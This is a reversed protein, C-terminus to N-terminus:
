ALYYGKEEITIWDSISFFKKTREKHGHCVVTIDVEVYLMWYSQFEKNFLKLNHVEEIYHELKNM